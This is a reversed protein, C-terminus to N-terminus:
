AGATAGMEPVNVRDNRFWRHYQVEENRDDALRRISSTKKEVLARHLQAGRKGPPPRWVAGVRFKGGCQGGHRIVEVMSDAMVAIASVQVAGRRWGTSIIPPQSAPSKMKM